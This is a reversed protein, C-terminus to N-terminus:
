HLGAQKALAASVAAVTQDMWKSPWKVKKETDRFIRLTVISQYVDKSNSPGFGDSASLVKNHVLGDTITEGEDNFLDLKLKM